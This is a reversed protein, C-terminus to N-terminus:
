PALVHGTLEILASVSAIASLAQPSAVCASAGAPPAPVPPCAPAESPPRAPAESPPRAPAESPPCAPAESPARAPAESPPRAPSGPLPSAPASPWNHGVARAVCRQRGPNTQLYASHVPSLPGVQTGSGAGHGSSSGLTGTQLQWSRFKALRQSSSRAPSNTANSPSHETRSPRSRSPVHPPSDASSTTVASAPSSVSSHPRAFIM